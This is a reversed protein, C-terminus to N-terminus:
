FYKKTDTKTSETAPEVKTEPESFKWVVNIGGRLSTQSKGGINALGPVNNSFANLQISGLNLTIGGGINTPVEKMWSYGTSLQLWKTPSYHYTLGAQYFQEDFRNRTHLLGIMQHKKNNTQYQATILFQNGISSKYSGITRNFQFDRKLEAEFEDLQNELDEEINDSNLNANLGNFSIEGDGSLSIARGFENKWKIYGGIDKASASVKWNDDIQYQIGLDVGVGHGLGFNHKGEFKYGDEDFYHAIMGGSRADLQLSATTAYAPFSNGDTFISADLSRLEFNNFGSYLNFRGGISIKSNIHHAYGAYVKQYHMLGFNEDDLNITQDIFQANGEGLYTLINRSLNTNIEFFHGYGFSLFGKNNQTHFGFYFPDSDFKVNIINEDELNSVLKRIDIYQTGEQITIADEPSFTSNATLSHATLLPLNFCLEGELPIAPNYMNTVVAARSGFAVMDIQGFSLNATLVFITFLINKM